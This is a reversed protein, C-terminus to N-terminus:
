AGFRRDAIFGAVATYILSAGELVIPWSTAARSCIVIVGLIVAVVSLCMTLMDRGAARGRLLWSVGALIMVAGILINVIADFRSPHTLIWIGVIILIVSGLLRAIESPKKSKTKWWGAVGAAASLILGVALVIYFVDKVINRGLILLLGIVGLILWSLASGKNVSEKTM